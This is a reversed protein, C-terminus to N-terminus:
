SQGFGLRFRARWGGSWRTPPPPEFWELALASSLVGRNEWLARDALVWESVSTPARIRGPRHQVMSDTAPSLPKLSERTTRAQELRRTSRASYQEVRFELGKECLQVITEYLRRDGRAIELRAAVTEPRLAEVRARRRALEDDVDDPVQALSELSALDSSAALTEIFRYAQTGRQFRALFPSARPQAERAAADARDRVADVAGHVYTFLALDAPTFVYTLDTDVHISMARSDFIGMRTFPAVGQEDHWQLTRADDGLVYEIEASPSGAGGSYIDAVIPEASRVDALRKLIRVYGSKGSANEGFLVTM